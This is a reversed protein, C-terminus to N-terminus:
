DDYEGMAPYASPCTSASRLHERLAQEAEARTADDLRGRAADRWRRVEALAKPNM